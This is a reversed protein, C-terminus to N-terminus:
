EGFRGKPVSGQWDATVKGRRIAQQISSYAWDSARTVLGHRVPDSWCYCLHLDFDADDRIHHEWFRRQWVPKERRKRQSARGPPATLGRSFRAKIAGWRGSFDRDGPPLSWICHLHDPLVVCAEIAFPRDRRTARVAERFRDIQRMLLDGSGDQMRVTFFITAGAIRPRSYNPM